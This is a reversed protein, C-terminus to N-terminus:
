IVSTTKISDKKKLRSKNINVKRNEAIYIYKKEKKFIPFDKKFVLYNKAAAISKNLCKHFSGSSFWNNWSLLKGM